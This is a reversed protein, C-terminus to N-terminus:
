WHRERRLLAECGKARCTANSERRRRLDCLVSRSRALQVEESVQMIPRHLRISHPSADSNVFFPTPSPPDLRHCRRHHCLDPHVRAHGADRQAMRTTGTRLPGGTRAALRASPERCTKGLIGAVGAGVALGSWQVATPWWLGLELQEPRPRCAVRGSGRMALEALTEQTPLARSRTRGTRSMQEM